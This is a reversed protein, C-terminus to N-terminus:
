FFLVPVIKGKGKGKLRTTTPIDSVHFLELLSLSNKLVNAPM